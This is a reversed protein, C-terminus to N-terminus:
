KHKRIIECIYTAASAYIEKLNVEIKNIKNIFM